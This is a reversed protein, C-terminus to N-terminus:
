DDPGAIQVSLFHRTEGELVLASLKGSRYAGTDLGIRNPLEEVSEIISHGHVVVAGHDRESRLFEDRITLLDRTSQRDLPVGPRVGAHVFLYDGMSYSLKMQEIMKLHSVPIADALARGFRQPDGMALREPVGYSALTQRGGHQLWGGWVDRPSALVDILFQEHNGRLLVLEHAFDPPTMLFDLVGRSQPGRDILDGLLILHTEAPERAADDAAITEVLQELLDLRGHVDGIAYARKGTPIAPREPTVALPKRRRLLNLM